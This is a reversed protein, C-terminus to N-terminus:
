RTLYDIMTLSVLLTVWFFGLGAFLRIIGPESTLEMSFILVIAAMTGAILVEAVWVHGHPFFVGLMGNIGLLFLSVVFVIFPTRLREILEHRDESM